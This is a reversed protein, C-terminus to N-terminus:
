LFFCMNVELIFQFVLKWFKCFDYFRIKYLFFFFLFCFTYNKEHLRWNEVYDHFLILLFDLTVNCNWPIIDTNRKSPSNIKTPDEERDLPNRTEVRSSIVHSTAPKEHCTSPQPREEPTISSCPSRAFHSYLTHYVNFLFVLLHNPCPCCRNGPRTVGAVVFHKKRSILSTGSMKGKTPDQDPDIRKIGTDTRSSFSLSDFYPGILYFSYKELSSAMTTFLTKMRKLM